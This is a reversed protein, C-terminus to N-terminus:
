VLHYQIDAKDYTPYNELVSSGRVTSPAMRAGVSRCLTDDTAFSQIADFAPNITTNDIFRWVDQKLLTDEINMEIDEM